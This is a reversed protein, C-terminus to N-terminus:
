SKKENQMIFAFNNTINISDIFDVNRAIQRIIITHKYYLLLIKSLNDNILRWNNILNNIM